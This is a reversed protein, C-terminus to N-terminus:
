EVNKYPITKIDDTNCLAILYISSLKSNYPMNRVVFYVGCIKHITAKSGLPNCPEFDDIFIQIQLSNPFRKFLENKRFISGCCFDAYENEKCIHGNGYENYKLYTSLFADNKFASQLTKIIPVYPHTYQLRVPFAPELVTKKELEFRTGIATKEPPVFFVDVTQM